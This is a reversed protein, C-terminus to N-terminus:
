FLFSSCLVVRLTSYKDIEYPRILLAPSIGSRNRENATSASLYQAELSQLRRSFFVDFLDFHVRTCKQHNINNRSLRLVYYIHVYKCFVIHSTICTKNDYVMTQAVATVLRNKKSKRKKSMANKAFM